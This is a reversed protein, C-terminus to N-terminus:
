WPSSLPPLPAPPSTPAKAVAHFGWRMLRGFSIINNEEEIARVQRWVQHGRARATRAEEAEGLAMMKKELRYYKFAEQRLDDLDPIGPVMM